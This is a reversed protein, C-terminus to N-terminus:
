SQRRCVIADTEVEAGAASQVVINRVVPGSIDASLARLPGEMQAGLVSVMPVVNGNADGVYLIGRDDVFLQAALLTDPIDGGGQKLQTIHGQPNATTGGDIALVPVPNAPDTDDLESVLNLAAAGLRDGEQLLTSSPTAYVDAVVTSGTRSILNYRTRGDAEDPIRDRWLRAM